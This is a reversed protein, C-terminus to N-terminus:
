QITNDRMYALGVKKAVTATTFEADVSAVDGNDEWEPTILFSDIPSYTQGNKEILVYDAMRVFRLVDLLYEPALFSFHYVKTSIQKTPFTYGDRDETEDEFNYEPKAIDAPLYIVNKFTPNKYVIPGADMEFDSVDYWQLKLYPSIDNVITFIESYWTDVGDTMEAYYRGDEMEDLIASDDPFVIVDYRYTEFPKITLGAANMQELLEGVLQGDEKYLKFSTLPTSITTKVVTSVVVREEGIEENYAMVRIKSTGAPLDWVGTFYTVGDSDLASLVKGNANFAVARAADPIIASPACNTLYVQTIELDDLGDYENVRYGDLDQRWDGDMALYGTDSDTARITVGPNYITTTRMERILQFPLLHNAPTYLPFVKHVWWKRSNRQDSNTYWPLVSFNNNPIM